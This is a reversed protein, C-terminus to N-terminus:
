QKMKDFEEHSADESKKEPSLEAKDEQRLILLDILRLLASLSRM